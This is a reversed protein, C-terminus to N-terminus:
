CGGGRDESAMQRIESFECEDGCTASISSFADAAGRFKWGAFAGLAFFVVGCVMLGM